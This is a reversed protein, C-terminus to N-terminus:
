HGVGCNAEVLHLAVLAKRALASTTLHLATALAKVEDRMGRLDGSVGDLLASAPQVEHAAKCRADLGSAWAKIHRARQSIRLPLTAL